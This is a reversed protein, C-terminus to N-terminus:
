RHKTEASPCRTEFSCNLSPGTFRAWQLGYAAAFFSATCIFVVTVAGRVALKTRWRSRVYGIIGLLDTPRASRRRLM